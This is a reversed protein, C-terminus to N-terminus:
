GTATKPLQPILLQPLSPLESQPIKLSRDINKNAKECPMKVTKASSPTGSRDFYFNATLREKLWQGSVQQPIGIDSLLDEIIEAEQANDEVLLVKFCTAPLLHFVAKM